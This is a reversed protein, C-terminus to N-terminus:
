RWRREPQDDDAFPPPWSICCRSCPALLLVMALAAPERKALAPWERSPELADVATGVGDKRAPCELCPEVFEVPFADM